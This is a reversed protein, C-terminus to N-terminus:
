RNGENSKAFRFSTGTYGLGEYFAHADTRKKNSTVEIMACGRGFLFTECAAVLARGIGQGRVSEDVIVATLRGIPGARHMVPTIHLTVAGVLPSGAEAPVRAAVLLQQGQDFFAALRARADLAPQPHGLLALLRVVEDADGLVAERVVISDSTM